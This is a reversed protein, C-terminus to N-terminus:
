KTVEEILTVPHLAGNILAEWNRPTPEEHALGNWTVLYRTSKKDAIFRMAERGSTCAVLWKNVEKDDLNYTLIRHINM